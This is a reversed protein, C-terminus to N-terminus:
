ELLDFLLHFGVRDEVLGDLLDSDVDVGLSLFNEVNDVPDHLPFSHIVKKLIKATSLYIM